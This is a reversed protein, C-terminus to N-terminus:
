DGAADHATLNEWVQAMQEGTLEVLAAVAAESGAPAAGLDRIAKSASLHHVHVVDDDPREYVATTCPLLGALTPDIEIADRAVEPHCVVILATPPAEDGLMGEIMQDLRTVQVTEFGVLEHEIQVTPVADEFPMDLTCHLTEEVTPAPRPVSSDDPTDSM